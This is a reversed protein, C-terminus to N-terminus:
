MSPSLHLQGKNTLHLIIGLSFSQRTHTNPWPLLTFPHLQPLTTSQSLILVRHILVVRFSDESGATTKTSTPCHCSSTQQASRTTM